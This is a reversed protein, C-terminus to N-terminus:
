NISVVREPYNTFIGDVQLKRMLNIDEPHNVTYVWVQLNQQQVSSVLESTVFDLSFIVIDAKLTQAITLFEWPLGYILMGIKIKPDLAKVQNLEYHNFSSVVFDQYSWGQQIYEQILKVVLKATNSGKLEINVLVQQKVTELVEQLIPIKEGKGADLSRLYALSQAEINGRGNTTRSLIRDHIVVLNNEVNYVDIEIADVGLALAKRVSLLTNEPEHGMAGRHGICLM